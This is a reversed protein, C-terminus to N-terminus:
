EVREAVLLRVLHRKEYRRWMQYKGLPNKATMLAPGQEHVRAERRAHREDNEIFRDLKWIQLLILYLTEKTSCLTKKCDCRRYRRRKM